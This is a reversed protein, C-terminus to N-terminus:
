KVAAKLKNVYNIETDTLHKVEGPKMSGLIIQEIKVRILRLTPHGISATMRRVQRNRGETLIIRVWSESINKRFRIPPVRPLVEPEDMIEVTAPLTKRGKIFVGNELITLEEKRPSGEVQVWYERRHRNLPNLLIETLAKDDTLILLGESDADLRGVPYIGKGFNYLDKLTPRGAIDTFQSLM